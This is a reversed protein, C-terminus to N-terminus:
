LFFSISIPIYAVDYDYTTFEDDRAVDITYSIGPENQDDSNNHSPIVLKVFSGLMIISALGIAIGSKKRKKLKYNKDQEM